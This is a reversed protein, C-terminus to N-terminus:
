KYGSRLFEHFSYFRSIETEICDLSKKLNIEPTEITGTLQVSICHGFVNFLSCRLTALTTGSCTILSFYLKDLIKKWDSLKKMDGFPCAYAYINVDSPYCFPTFLYACPRLTFRIM